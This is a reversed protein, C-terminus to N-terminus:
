GEFWQVIRYKRELRPDVEVVVQLSSRVPSDSRSGSAEVTFYSSNEFMVYPAIAAYIEDGLLFQLEGPAELDKKARFNHIAQIQEPSIGPLADLLKPSAANINIRNRVKRRNGGGGFIQSRGGGGEGSRVTVMNELGGYFIDPTVGRVLLLEGISLFPGNRAAYPDPLSLYYDDEAGNIRHFSDSDRWDLISDVIVDKETDTLDFPNLMVRLLPADAGNLDVKGSENEIRVQFSGGGFPVPAIDTNVRWDQNTGSSDATEVSVRRTPRTEQRILNRIAANAGARAIYYARTEETFNRTINVATRMAHSFEGAIVSLLVLVWLVIFLAIGREDGISDPCRM